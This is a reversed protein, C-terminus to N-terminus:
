MYSRDATLFENLVYTNCPTGSLDIRYSDETYM